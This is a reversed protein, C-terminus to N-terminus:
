MLNTKLFKSFRRLSEYACPNTNRIEHEPVAVETNIEFQLAISLIKSFCLLLLYESLIPIASREIRIELQFNIM